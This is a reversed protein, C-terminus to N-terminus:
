GQNKFDSNKFIAEFKFGEGELKAKAGEERDVLTLLGVINCGVKRVEQIAEEISNGRTTVDDVVVVRSSPKLEGEIKNKTGHTKPFHRVWFAPIPNGKMFSLQAVATCIPIAGTEIGGIADLNRDKVMDYVISAILSIGEPDQTVRKCDFLYFSTGGSALEFPEEGKRPDRRLYAKNEILTKM